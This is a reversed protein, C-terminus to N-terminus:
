EGGITDDADPDTEGAEVSSGASGQFGEPQVANFSDTLDRDFPAGPLHAAGPQLDAIDSTKRPLPYMGVTYDRRPGRATSPADIKTIRLTVREVHSNEARPIVRVNVFGFRSIDPGAGPDAM